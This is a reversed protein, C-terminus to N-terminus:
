SRFRWISPASLPSPPPVAMAEGRATAQQDPPVTPFQFNDWVQRLAAGWVLADLIRGSRSRKRRDPEGM